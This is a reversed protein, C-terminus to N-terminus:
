LIIRHSPLFIRSALPFHIMYPILKFAFACTMAVPLGLASQEKVEGLKIREESLDVAETPIPSSPRTQEAWDCEGDRWLKVHVLRFTPALGPHPGCVM